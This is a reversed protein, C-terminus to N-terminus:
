PYGSDIRLHKPISPIETLDLISADRLARFRGIAYQGAHAPDKAIERLATEAEDSAYFMAIGPPSMRNAMTAKDQPPPGLEAATELNEGPRQLRARYFPRNAPLTKVLGFRECWRELENLLALPGYLEQQTLEERLFFYRRRHKILECFEDWSFNLKEDDTLSFSHKQCWARDGLGDCLTEMLIGDDDNPLAEGLHSELLEMTTWVQGIYGGEASEYPLKNEAVDYERGMCENIYLLVEVLPAAIPDASEAGCFTCARAHVENEIFDCLGVDDVCAACIYKDASVRM